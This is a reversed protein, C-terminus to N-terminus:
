GAFLAQKAAAYEEALRAVMDGTREVADIAGFGQGCGWIDKWAESIDDSTQRDLINGKDINSITVYAIQNKKEYKISM